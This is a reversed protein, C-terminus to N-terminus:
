EAPAFKEIYKVLLETFNLVAREAFEEFTEKAEEDGNDSIARLILFDVNNQTAVQGVAAGEMETCLAGFTELLDAKAESSAIFQDGTVITGVHHHLNMKQLLKECNYRMAWTSIIPDTDPIEARKHGMPTLDFDHHYLNQSIVIDGLGVFPSVSGALGTNIIESVGFVSILIQTAMAANVKGMGSVCYIVPKNEVKAQTFKIKAVEKIDKETSLSDFMTAEEQMAFIIGLM